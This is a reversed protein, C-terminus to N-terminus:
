CLREMRAGYLGLRRAGDEEREIVIYRQFMRRKVWRDLYPKEALEQVSGAHVTGLVRSGMYVAQEVAFFDEESGLEDVALVQPSMARLLMRMGEPKGCGDLVDTRPGLDNQPIGMHCAALESREDVVCVKLGACGGTGESLMRICDRLLTTKGGGPESLILTNYISSGNRIGPLIERACGKKEHAIRINLFTVHSIGAIKGEALVASGALGIRHGGEITIYGQKLEEQYAYLSYSSIYSLMEAIDQVSACYPYDEWQQDPSHEMFRCTGDQITLYRVGAATLFEVPQGVRVRIEELGQPWPTGRLSERVYLPFVREIEPKM